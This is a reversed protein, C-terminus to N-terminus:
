KAKAAMAYNAGKKYAYARKKAIWTRALYGMEALAKCSRAMPGPYSGMETAVQKPTLKAGKAFLKLVRTQTDNLKM